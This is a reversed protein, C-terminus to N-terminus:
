FWPEPLTPSLLQELVHYQSELIKSFLQYITHANNLAWSAGLRITTVNTLSFSFCHSKFWTPKSLISSLQLILVIHYCINNAHVSFSVSMWSSRNHLVGYSNYLSTLNVAFKCSWNVVMNHQHYLMAVSKVESDGTVPIIGHNWTCNDICV